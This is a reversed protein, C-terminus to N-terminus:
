IPNPYQVKGAPVRPYGFIHLYSGLLWSHGMQLGLKHGALSVRPELHGLGVWGGVTPM